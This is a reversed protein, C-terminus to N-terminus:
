LRRSRARCSDSGANRITAVYACQGSRLARQGPNASFLPEHARAHSVSGLDYNVAGDIVISFPILGIIPNRAHVDVLKHVHAPRSTTEIGAMGGAVYVLLDIPGAESAVGVASLATLSGGSYGIVAIRAQPNSSRIASIRQRVAAEEWMQHYSVNRFGLGQVYTQVGQFNFLNGPDVGNILLVHVHDRQAEALSLIPRSDEPEPPAVPHIWAGVGGGAPAQTTLACTLILSIVGLHKM